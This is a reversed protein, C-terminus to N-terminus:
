AMTMWPRGSEGILVHREFVDFDGVCCPSHDLASLIQLLFFTQYLQPFHNRAARTARSSQERDGRALERAVRLTRNSLRDIARFRHQLGRGCGRCLIARRRGNADLSVDFDDRGLDLMSFISSEAGSTITDRGAGGILKDHGGNGKIV